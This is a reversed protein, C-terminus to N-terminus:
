KYHTLSIQVGINDPHYMVSLVRYNKGDVMIPNGNEMSAPLDSADAIIEGDVEQVVGDVEVMRGGGIESPTATFTKGQCACTVPLDDIIESLDDRISILDM